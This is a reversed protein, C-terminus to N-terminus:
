KAGSDKRAGGSQGFREEDNTSDAEDREKSLNGDWNWTRRNRDCTL